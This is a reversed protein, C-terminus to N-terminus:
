SELAVLLEVPEVLRLEQEALEVLGPLLEPEALEAVQVPAVLEPEALEAVQALEALELVALEAQELVAFM